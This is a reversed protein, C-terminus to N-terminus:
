QKALFELIENMAPLCVAALTATYMQLSYLAFKSAFNTPKLAVHQM